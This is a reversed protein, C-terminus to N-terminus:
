QSPSTRRAAEVAITLATNVRNGVAAPSTEYVKRAGRIWGIPRAVRRMRINAFNPSNYVLNAEPM